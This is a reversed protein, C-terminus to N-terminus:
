LNKVPKKLPVSAKYITAKGEICYGRVAAPVLLSVGKKIDLSNGDFTDTITAKGETCLMIEIGRDGEKKYVPDHGSLTILSLIFEESRSNYITEFEGNKDGTIVQPKDPSFSLINSLEEVDIHKQTLGGRLVNDSNAMIELGSGSLYAHLERAPLFIAESPALRLVNLYLPSLVGTDGPYEINLRYMWEYAKEKGRLPQIAKIADNVLVAAKSREMNMLGMFFARIGSKDPNEKLMSIFGKGLIKELPEFLRIIEDPERFGKLAWMETLACILEPKHNKDRYNRNAADLPMHNKNERKFGAEAQGKDPHAQISLPKAASLVKFLFPMKGDFYESVSRGLIDDPHEEILRNLPIWRNDVAVMSPAKKHAGMWLEAQPKLYPPKIGLLAPIFSKSGWPYELIENKLLCIRNM